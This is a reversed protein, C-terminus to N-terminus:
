HQAPLLDAAHCCRGTRLPTSQGSGPYPLQKAAPANSNSQNHKAMTANKVLTRVQFCAEAHTVTASVRRAWLRKHHPHPTATPRQRTHPPLHTVGLCIGGGSITRYEFSVGQMCWCRRHQDAWFVGHSGAAAQRVGGRMGTPPAAQGNQSCSNPAVPASSPRTQLQQARCRSAVLLAHQPTTHTQSTCGSRHCGSTPNTYHRAGTRRAKAQQRPSTNDALQQRDTWLLHQGPWLVCVCSRAEAAACSRQLSVCLCVFVHTHEQQHQPGTSM